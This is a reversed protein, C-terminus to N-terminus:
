SEKNNVSRFKNLYEEAQQRNFFVGETDSYFIIEDQCFFCFEKDSFDFMINKVSYTEIRPEFRITNVYYLNDGIKCPPNSIPNTMDTDEREALANFIDRYRPLQMWDISSFNNENIRMYDPTLRNASKDYNM